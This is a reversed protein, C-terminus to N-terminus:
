PIRKPLWHTKRSIPIEKKEKKPKEEKTSDLEEPVQAKELEKKIKELDEQNASTRKGDITEDKYVPLINFIEHGFLNKPHVEIKKPKLIKLKEAMIKTLNLVKQSGDKGHIKPLVLIHGRSAPNIELIAIAEENEDVKFSQTEGDIISCFICKGPEGKILKNEKLFEELQEGDMDRISNIIEDKNPVNTKGLQELLQKKLNEAQDKSLM